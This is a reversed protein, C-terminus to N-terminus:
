SSLAQQMANLVAQALYYRGPDLFHWTSGTEHQLAHRQMGNYTGRSVPVYRLCAVGRAEVAQRVDDEHQALMKKSYAGSVETQTLLLFLTSGCLAPLAELLADLKELVMSHVDLQIVVVDPAFTPESQWSDLLLEVNPSAPTGTYAYILRTRNPPKKSVVCPNLICWPFVATRKLCAQNSTRVLRGDPARKFDGM